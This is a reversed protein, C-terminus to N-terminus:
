LQIRLQYYFIKNTCRVCFEQKLNKKTSFIKISLYFRSLFFFCLFIIDSAEWSLTIAAVNGSRLRKQPFIFRQKQSFFFVGGKGNQPFSHQLFNERESVSFSFCLSLEKCLFVYHHLTARERGHSDFPSTISPPPTPRYSRPSPRPSLGIPKTSSSSPRLWLSILRFFSESERKQQPHPRPNTNRACTQNGPPNSEGRGRWTRTGTCVLFEVRVMKRGEKLM